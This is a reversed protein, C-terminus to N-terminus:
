NYLYYADGDMGNEYREANGGCCSPYVLLRRQGIAKPRPLGRLITARGMAARCAVALTAGEYAHRPVVKERGHGRVAAEGSGKKTCSAPVARDNTADKPRRVTAANRLALVVGSVGSRFFLPFTM